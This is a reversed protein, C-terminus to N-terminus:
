LITFLIFNIPRITAFKSTELSIIDYSELNHVRFMKKLRYEFEFSSLLVAHLKRVHEYLTRAIVCYGAFCWVTKFQCLYQSATKKIRFEIM